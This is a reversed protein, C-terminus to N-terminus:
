TCYTIIWQERDLPVGAPNQEIDSLSVSIAGAIHSSEFFDSRRVDVIIAEGSEFAAKAEEVSIRPVDAESRPLNEATFAPEIIQTPALTPQVQTPRASCASMFLLVVFPIYRLRLM